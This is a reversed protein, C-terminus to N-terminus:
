VLAYPDDQWGRLVKCYEFYYVEVSGLSFYLRTILQAIAPARALPSIYGPIKKDFLELLIAANQTHSDLKEPVNQREPILEIIM